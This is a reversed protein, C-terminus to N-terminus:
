ISPPARQGPAAHCLDCPLHLTVSVDLSRSCSSLRPFGQRPRRGVGRGEWALRPGTGLPPSIPRVMWFDSCLTNGAQDLNCVFSPTAWPGQCCRAAWPGQIM